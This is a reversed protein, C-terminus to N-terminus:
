PHRRESQPHTSPVHGAGARAARRRLYRQHTKEKLRQALEQRRAHWSRWVIAQHEHNRARSARRLENLRGRDRQARERWQLRKYDRLYRRLESGPNQRERLRDTASICHDSRVCGLQRCSRRRPQISDGPRARGRYLMRRVGARLREHGRWTVCGNPGDDQLLGDRKLAAELAALDDAAGPMRRAVAGSM